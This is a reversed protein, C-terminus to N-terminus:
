SQPPPTEAAVWAAFDPDTAAEDVVLASIAPTQSPHLARIRDVASNAAAASTKVILAVEDSSEIAGQWRYISRLGPLINVCAALRAEVLAAAITEATQRDPTTTYIIRIQSM